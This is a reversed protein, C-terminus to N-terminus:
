RNKNIKQGHADVNFNYRTFIILSNFNWLYIDSNKTHTKWKVKTKDFYMAYIHTHMWILASFTGAFLFGNKNKEYPTM